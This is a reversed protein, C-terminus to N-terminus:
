TPSPGTGGRPRSLKDLLRTLRFTRLHNKAGITLLLVIVLPPGHLTRNSLHYGLLGLAIALSVACFFLSWRKRAIMRRLLALEAPSLDAELM